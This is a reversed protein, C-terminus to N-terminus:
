LASRLRLAAERCRNPLEPLQVAADGDVLALGTGGLRRRQVSETFADLADELLRPLPGVGQTLLGFAFDVFQALGDRSSTLSSRSTALRSAASTTSWAM